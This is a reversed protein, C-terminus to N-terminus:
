SASGAEYMSARPRPPAAPRPLRALLAVVLGTGLVFWWGSWVGDYDEPVAPILVFVAGVMPSLAVALLRRGRASMPFRRVAVGVVMLFLTFGPVFLFFLILSVYLVGVVLLIAEILLGGTAGDSQLVDGVLEGVITWGALAAPIACALVL